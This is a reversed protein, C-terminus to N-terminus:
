TRAKELAARATDIDDMPVLFCDTGRRIPRPDAHLIANTVLIELAEVLEANVARLRDREQATEPAAAILRAHAEQRKHAGHIDALWAVREGKSGITIGGNVRTAQWPGPTHPGHNGNEDHQKM